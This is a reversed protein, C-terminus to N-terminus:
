ILVFVLSAAACCIVAVPLLRDFVLTVMDM